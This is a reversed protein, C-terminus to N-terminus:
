KLAERIDADTVTGLGNTEAYSPGYEISAPVPVTDTTQANKKTDMLDAILFKIIGLILNQKQAATLGSFWTDLKTSVTAPTNFDGNTINAANALARLQDIRYKEFVTWKDANPQPTATPTGSRTRDNAWKAAEVYDTAIGSAALLAQAQEQTM